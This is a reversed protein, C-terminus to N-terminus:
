PTLTPPRTGLTVKIVLSAGDRLIHLDVTQGPAFGALTADLPHETDITRDNIAVVIDGEKLGAKEAPGDPIIGPLTEGAANQSPGILAGKDVSLHEREKVQVNIAEYRIGIYPRSLEEGALAQQMIPRALDIPIAFGIGNSDRAVATNIGIVNGAADILPGGSNGPNIAADTQILNTLRTTGDVDVTRGTASIIGSTVTNSYTGLPSGIAIALQGVKLESSFGIAATPLDTDVDIKVIALDTLTDVGYIRGDFRRGDKLEVTLSDALQGSSDRVVHRNTLIWGDADYILGSGIGETPIEGTVDPNVGGVLIRVVAPGVKAAADIVASSEDITVPQGSARASDVPSNAGGGGRGNLLGASSLGLFTGGSALMASLLAVVLLTGLGAQRAPRDTAQVPATEVPQAAIATTAPWRTTTDSAWGPRVDASPSYTAPAEPATADADSSVNQPELPDTM